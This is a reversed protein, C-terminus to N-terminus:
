KKIIRFFLAQKGLALLVEASIFENLKAPERSLVKSFM